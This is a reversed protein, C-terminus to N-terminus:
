HNGDSAAMKYTTEFTALFHAFAFQLETEITGRNKKEGGLGEEAGKYILYDTLIAVQREGERGDQPFILCQSCDLGKRCQTSEHPFRTKSKLIRIDSICYFMKDLISKM